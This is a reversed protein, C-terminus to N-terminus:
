ILSMCTHFGSCLDYPTRLIVKYTGGLLEYPPRWIFLVALMQCKTRANSLIMEFINPAM